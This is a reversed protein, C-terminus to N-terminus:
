GAASRKDDRRRSHSHPRTHGDANAIVRELQAQDDALSRLSLSLSGITQAVAVKEAIRPTVELTVTRFARVVTKGDVTESETSQDTALVRLDHSDRPRFIVRHEGFQVPGRYRYVTTHVIDYRVTM